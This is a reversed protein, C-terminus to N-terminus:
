WTMMVGLLMCTHSLGHAEIWLVRSLRAPCVQAARATRDAADGASEQERCRGECATLADTLRSVEGRQAAAYRQVEKLAEDLSTLGVAQEQACPAHDSELVIIISQWM